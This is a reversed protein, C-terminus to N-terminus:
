CAIRASSPDRHIIGAEHATALGACIQTVIDGVRALPLRTGPQGALLHSLSEGDVLEMTLFKEGEHEGIDFM